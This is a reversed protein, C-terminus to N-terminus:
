EKTQQFSKVYLLLGSSLPIFYLIIVPTPSVIHSGFIVRLIFAFPKKKKNQKRVCLSCHRSKRKTKTEPFFWCCCCSFLNAPLTKKNL